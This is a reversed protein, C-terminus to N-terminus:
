STATPIGGQTQSRWFSFLCGFRIGKKMFVTSATWWRYPSSKGKVGNLFEGLGRVKKLPSGRRNADFLRTQK